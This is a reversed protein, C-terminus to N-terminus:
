SKRRAEDERDVWQHIVAKNWETRWRLTKEHYVHALAFGRNPRVAMDWVDGLGFPAYVDMFTDGTRKLGFAQVSSPFRLIGESATTLPPYAIGFKEPYWLHVRAQNRLQVKVPLDAFLLGAERIVYDEAEWSVDDSFYCIDYDTIGKDATRGSRLNWVTQFLCGSALWWDRIGLSPMRNLIEANNRNLLCLEVVRAALREAPTDFADGDVPPDFLALSTPAARKRPKAPKPKPFLRLRLGRGDSLVIQAM